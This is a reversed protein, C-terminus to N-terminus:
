REVCGVPICNDPQACRRSVVIHVAAFPGSSCSAGVRSNTGACPSRERECLARARVRGSAHHRSRDFFLWLSASCAATGRVSHETPTHRLNRGAVREANHASSHRSRAPVFRALKLYLTDRTRVRGSEQRPSNVHCFHQRAPGRM